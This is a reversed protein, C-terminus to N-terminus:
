EEESQLVTRAARTRKGRVNATLEEVYPIAACRCNSSLIGNAFYVTASSTLDYVPLSSLHEIEIGAISVTSIHRSFVETSQRDQISESFPVRNLNPNDLRADREPDTANPGIANRYIDLLEQFHIPDPGRDFLQRLIESVVSADDRAPKLFQADDGPIKTLGHIKAHRLCGRLFALAERTGGMLRDPSLLSAEIFEAFSGDAFLIDFIGRGELKFGNLTEHFQANFDDWLLSDPFVIDIDGQCHSGDGHLDIASIPMRTTTVGPTKALAHIINDVRAPNGDDNPDGLSHGQLDPSHFVADGESLFKAMIFGDPTALMHNPTVSLRAGNAFRLKFIPGSYEATMATVIDPAVVITEATVCNPHVPIVGEIEDLSFIKGDFGACLECVQDDKATAFEARITVKMEEDISRYENINALNHARVIETRAILRARTIGIRDVANAIDSVLGRAVAEVSKGEALGRAIGSRLGEAIARRLEANMVSTVTKLDEFTRMYLMAVTEAHVPMNFAASITGPALPDTGYLETGLGARRLEARARRIGQRYASEIYSDMWSGSGRVPIGSVNVRSLIGEDEQRELWRLFDSLKQIDREFAFAQPPLPQNTRLPRIGFCNNDVISIEIDRKLAKFRRVIDQQFRARLGTTRTPDARGIANRLLITM